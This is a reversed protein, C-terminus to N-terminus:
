EKFLSNYYDLVRVIEEEKKFNIKNDKIWKRHAATTMAPMLEYFNDESLKKLKQVIDDSKLYYSIEDTFFYRKQTGFLSDTSSLKRNVQKLLEYKGYNMVQMLANLDKSEESYRNVDKTFAATVLSTDQGPHFIIATIKNEDTAVLEENNKLFHVDNTVLNLRVPLVGLFNDVSYLSAMQWQDQWFPSGKIRSYPISTKEMDPGHIMMEAGKLAGVPGKEIYIQSCASQVGLALIFIFIAKHLKYTKQSAYACNSRNIIDM